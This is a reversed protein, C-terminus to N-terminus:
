AGQGAELGARLVGAVVDAATTNAPMNAMATVGAALMAETPVTPPALQQDAMTLVMDAQHRAAGYATDGTDRVHPKLSIVADLLAQLETKITTM